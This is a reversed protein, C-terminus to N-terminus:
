RTQGLEKQAADWDQQFKAMGQDTMSHQLMDAIVKYPMTAVHAGALASERVQDTNRISAALVQTNLNHMQFIAVIEQILELGSGPKIDELRGIFPSAYSAGARAALLAQNASFILTVNTKIGEKSLARCAQLGEATLPLKVTINEPNIKHFARGQVIMEAATNAMVEASISEIGECYQAIESIRDEYRVGREKAILSPNTTVGSLVGLDYAKKIDEFHASDVFIKM